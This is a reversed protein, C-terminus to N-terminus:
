EMELFVQVHSSSPVALFQRFIDSGQETLIAEPHYQVGFLPYSDHQIGMILQRGKTDHTWASVQWDKPLKDLSVVLSHYRTALLAQPLQEFLGSELHYIESQKGHYIEDAQIVEGGFAEILCQHGLCVGLMPYTKFYQLIFTLTNPADVPKGPGPSLVVHTPKLVELTVSPLEDSQVVSVRAGLAEFYSKILQTFSDHHDVLMVRKDQAEIFWGCESM